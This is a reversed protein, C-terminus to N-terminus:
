ENDPTDFDHFDKGKELSLISLAAAAGEGASIIAQTRKPRTAWGVCYLGDVTTRGERDADVGGEPNEGLGFDSAFAKAPGAALILFDAQRSSQDDLVVEFGSDSLSATKVKATILEGGYSAVQKRGVDLLETGTITEVGLYNYLMAYHTATENDGIVTTQYGNKALFLAASLGAPGDGIIIVSKM